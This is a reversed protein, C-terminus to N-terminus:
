QIVDGHRVIDGEIMYLVDEAINTAHDAIRELTKPLALMAVCSDFGGQCKSINNKIHEQLEHNLRDIEDDLRCVERATATDLNVLSDLSKQLMIQVKAAMTLYDPEINDDLKDALLPVKEAITSALDGIRELDSNIKLASVIFRLDIAVPQHLALIKLCDEEIEVEMKDLKIDDSVVQEALQKDRNKVAITAQQVSDEALAGLKLINVKLRDIERKLHLPM